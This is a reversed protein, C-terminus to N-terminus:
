RGAFATEVLGLWRDATARNGSIEVDPGTRGWLAALVAPGPGDIEAKPPEDGVLWRDDLQDVSIRLVGPPVGVMGAAFPLVLEVAEAIADGVQAHNLGPGALGLADAVDMRHLTTEIAARRFWLSATGPGFYTRCPLEPDLSRFTELCRGMEAAFYHLAAEGQPWTDPWPVSDFMESQDPPTRAGHPYSLGLGIALHNVVHEVNWGPCAPVTVALAEVPLKAFWGINDDLWNLHDNPAM